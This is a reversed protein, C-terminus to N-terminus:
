SALGSMPDWYVPFTTLRAMMMCTLTISVLVDIIQYGNALTAIRIVFSCVFQLITPIPWGQSLNSPDPIIDAEVKQGLHCQCQVLSSRM